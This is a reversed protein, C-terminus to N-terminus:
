FDTNKKMNKIKKPLAAIRNLRQRHKKYSVFPKAPSFGAIITNATTNLKEETEKKMKEIQEKMKAASLYPSEVLKIGCSLCLISSFNKEARMSYGCDLCTVLVSYSGDEEKKKTSVICNM